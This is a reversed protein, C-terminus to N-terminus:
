RRVPTNGGHEYYGGEKALKKNFEKKGKKFGRNFDMAAKDPNSDSNIHLEDDNGALGASFGEGYDTEDQRYKNYPECDYKNPVGDKDTDKLYRRARARKVTGMAQWKSEVKARGVKKFAAKKGMKRKAKKYLSSMQRSSLGKRNTM